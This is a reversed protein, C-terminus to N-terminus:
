SDVTIKISAPNPVIYPNLWVVCNINEPKDHNCDYQM